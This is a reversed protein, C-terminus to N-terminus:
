KDRWESPIYYTECERDTLTRREGGSALAAKVYARAETVDPLPIGEGTWGACFDFLCGEVIGICSFRDRPKRLLYCLIGTEMDYIECVEDNQLLLYSGDSTHGAANLEMDNHKPTITYVAEFDGNEGRRELTFSNNNRFILNGGIDDYYFDEKHWSNQQVFGISERTEPDYIAKIRKLTGQGTVEKSPLILLGDDTFALPTDWQEAFGLTGYVDIKWPEADLAELDYVWAFSTTEVLLKGRSIELYPDYPDDTEVQLRHLYSRADPDILVIEFGTDNKQAYAALSGNDRIAVQLIRKESLDEWVVVRSEEVDMVYFIGEDDMFAMRSGDPTISRKGNTKVGFHPAFADGERIATANVTGGSFISFGTKGDESVLQFRYKSPKMDFNEVNAELIQLENKLIRYIRGADAEWFCLSEANWLLRNEEVAWFATVNAYEEKDSLQLLALKRDMALSIAEIQWRDGHDETFADFIQRYESPMVDYEEDQYDGVVMSWSSVSHETNQYTTMGNELCAAALKPPLTGCPTYEEGEFYGFAEYRCRSELSPDFIQRAIWLKGDEGEIPFSGNAEGPPLLAVRAEATVRGTKTEAIRYSVSQEGTSLVATEERTFREAGDFFYYGVGPLETVLSGTRSDYLRTLNFDYVTLYRGDGYFRGVQWQNNDFLIRSSLTFYETKEEFQHQLAVSRVALETEATVPYDPNELEEPLAANALLAALANDEAAMDLAQNALRVSENEYLEQQKTELEQQKVELKKQRDSIQAIMVSTYIGFAALAAMALAIMARRRRLSRQYLRDFSVGLVPAAIRLYETRLKQKREWGNKGRVDAGLPEVEVRFTGTTGDPKQAEREEFRILEPFVEEPDGEVLVPLINVNTNGHLSRFYRLEEMCWASERYFPSCLIILYRSQELAERIDAGLDGSTPLDSKDRFVSLKKGDEKKRSELLTQLKEAVAMDAPLHRYSIFADYNYEM